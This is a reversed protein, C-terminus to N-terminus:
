KKKEPKPHAVKWHKICAKIDLEEIKDLELVSQEKIDKYCTFCLRNSDSIKIIGVTHKLNCCNCYQRKFQRDEILDPISNIVEPQLDVPANRFVQRSPMFRILEPFNREM